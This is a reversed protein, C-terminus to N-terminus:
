DGESEDSPEQLKFDEPKPIIHPKQAKSSALWQIVRILSDANLTVEQKNELTMKGTSVAEDMLRWAEEQLEHPERTKATKSM